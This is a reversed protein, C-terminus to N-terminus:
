DQRSDTSAAAAPADQSDNASGVPVGRAARATFVAALVGAPVALIWTARAGIGGSLALGSAPGAAPGIDNTTSVAAQYTVGRGAPAISSVLSNLNPDYLMDGFAILVISGVVVALSASAVTFLALGLAQLLVGTALLAAVSRRSTARTIPIQLLVTIAASLALLISFTSTGFARQTRLIALGDAEWWALTIALLAGGAVLLGLRRDTAIARIGPVAAQLEEAEEALSIRAANRPLTLLIVVGSMALLGGSVLFVDALPAGAVVAAGALPGLISGL